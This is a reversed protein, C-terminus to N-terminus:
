ETLVPFSLLDTMAYKGFRVGAGGEGWGVGALGGPIQRNQFVRTMNGVTHVIIVCDFTGTTPSDCFLMKGM